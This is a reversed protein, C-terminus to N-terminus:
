DSKYLNRTLNPHTGVMHLVEQVGLEKGGGADCFPGFNVLIKGLNIPNVKAMMKGSNIFNYRFKGSNIL